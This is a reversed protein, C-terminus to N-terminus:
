RREKNIAWLKNGRFVTSRPLFFCLMNIKENLDLTNMINGLLFTQIVYHSRLLIKFNLKDYLMTSLPTDVGEGM